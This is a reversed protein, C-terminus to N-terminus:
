IDAIHLLPIDVPVLGMLLAATLVGIQCIVYIVDGRAPKLLLPSFAHAREFDHMVQRFLTDIFLLTRKKFSLPSKQFFVRLLSYASHFTSLICFLMLTFNFQGRAKRDIRGSFPRGMTHFASVLQDESFSHTLMSSMMFLEVIFVVYYLGRRVGQRMIILPGQRLLVEGGGRFANVVLIFLLLPIIPLIRFQKCTFGLFLMM